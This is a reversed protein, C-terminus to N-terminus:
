KCGKIPLRVVVTTGAEGPSLVQITGGHKQIMNYALTLGLGCGDGVERTTYFPEFVRKLQHPPIGPGDDQIHVVAINDEVTTTILIEGGKPSAQVANLIVNMFVQNLQSECGHVEPLPTFRCVPKVNEDLRATLVQLTTELCRNLDLSAMTEVGPQAFTKLNSVISRIRESGEQSEHILAPLDTLLYDLDIRRATDELTAARRRLKGLRGETNSIDNLHCWLHRAGGLLAALDIGYQALTNLNSSIFGMPNNIEHAMGAALQGIAALQAREMLQAQVDRIEGAQRAVEKELQAALNRYRAESEALADAKQQLRLYSEEVVEGHLRASMLYRYREMMLAEMVACAFAAVGALAEPTLDEGRRAHLLGITEMEHQLPLVLENPDDNKGAANTKEPYYRKGDPYFIALRLLGGPKAQGFIVALRRRDLLDALGYERDFPDMPIHDTQDTM